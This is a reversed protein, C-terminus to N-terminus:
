RLRRHRGFQEEFAADSMKKEIKRNCNPCVYKKRGKIRWVFYKRKFRVGCISCSRPKRVIIILVIVGVVVLLEM